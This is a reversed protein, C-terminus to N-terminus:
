VLLEIEPKRENANNLFGFRSAFAQRLHTGEGGGLHLCGNLVNHRKRGNTVKRDVLQHLAFYSHSDCSLGCKHLLGLLGRHHGLIHALHDAPNHLGQGIRGFLLLALEVQM